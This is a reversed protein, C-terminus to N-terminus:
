AAADSDQGDASRWLRLLHAPTFCKESWRTEPDLEIKAFYGLVPDHVVEHVMGRLEHEQCMLRISTATPIPTELLLTAAAADIEELNATELRVSGDADEWLVSILESCMM